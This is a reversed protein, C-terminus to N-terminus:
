LLSFTDLTKMNVCLPMTCEQVYLALSLITMRCAKSPQTTVLMFVGANIREGKGRFM